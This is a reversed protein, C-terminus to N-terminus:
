EFEDGDCVGKDQDEEEGDGKLTVAATLPNVVVGTFDSNGEVAGHQLGLVASGFKQLEVHHQETDVDACSGASNDAVHGGALRRLPRAPWQVRLHKAFRVGAYVLIPLLAALCALLVPARYFTMDFVFLVAFLASFVLVVSRSGFVIKHM